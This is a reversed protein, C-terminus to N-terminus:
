CGNIGSQASPGSHTPQPLELNSRCRRDPAASSNTPVRPKVLAPKGAADVGHIAFVNKAVDIEMTVIPM